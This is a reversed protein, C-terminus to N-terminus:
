PTIIYVDNRLLFAFCKSRRIVADSDKIYGFGALAMDVDLAQSLEINLRHFSYDESIKDKLKGSHSYIDNCKTLKCFDNTMSRNYRLFNGVCIFQDCFKM